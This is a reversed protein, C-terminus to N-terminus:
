GSDFHLDVLKTRRSMNNTKINDRIKKKQLLDHTLHKKKKKQHTKTTPKTMLELNSSSLQQNFFYIYDHYLFLKGHLNVIMIYHLGM